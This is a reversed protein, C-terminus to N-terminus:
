FRILRKYNNPLGYQKNISSFLFTDEVGRSSFGYEFNLIDLVKKEDKKDFYVTYSFGSDDVWALGDSLLFHWKKEYDEQAKIILLDYNEKIEKVKDKYEKKRKDIKILKIENEMKLYLLMWSCPPHLLWNKYIYNVM